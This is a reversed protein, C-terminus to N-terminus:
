KLNVWGDYWNKYASEPTSGVGRFNRGFCLWEHGHPKGDFLGRKVLRLLHPKKMPEPRGYPM